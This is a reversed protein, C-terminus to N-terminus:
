PAPEVFLQLSGRDLLPLYGKERAASCINCLIACPHFGPTAYRATEDLAVLHEVKDLDEGSPSLIAWILYESTKSDLGLGFSKCELDRATVAVSIYGDMIEPSNNFRTRTRSATLISENQGAAMLPRSPNSVLVTLSSLAILIIVAIQLYHHVRNFVWGALPSALIFWPLLLRSATDQWKFLASFLLYSLLVTVAYFLPLKDSFGEHGTSPGDHTDAFGRRFLHKSFLVFVYVTALATFIFHWNNGAFDEHVSHRIRYVGLTTRPDNIDIGLVEHTKQAALYLAKNAPGTDFAMQMAANRLGTSFLASPTFVTSGLHGTAPGLPNGFTRYNKTWLSGNLVIMAALGLAALSLATKWQKKWVLAILLWALFPIVCVVATGKSLMALGLSLALFVSNWALSKDPGSVFRVSEAVAFYSFCIGWFAAVYDTQTGSSQLVGMPLTVAFLAAFLQGKQGAGLRSALLSAAIVSGFMSMWQVLNAFRDNGALVQFHLIAYEAFPPMWLQRDSPTPFFDVSRNVIWHMVRSMHYQMSDNTNPPAIIAVLFTVGLYIAIVGLMVWSLAGEVKPKQSFRRFDRRRRLILGLSVALVIGWFITVSRRDIAHFFGMRETSLAVLTGWIVASALISERWDRDQHMLRVSLYIAILDVFLILALMISSM